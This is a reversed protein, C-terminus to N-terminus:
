SPRGKSSPETRGEPGARGDAIPPADGRLPDVHHDGVRGEPTRNTHWLSGAPAPAPPREPQAEGQPGTTPAADDGDGAGDPRYYGYGYRRRGSSGVLVIGSVHAGVQTLQEVAGRAQDSAVKGARAVVLSTDVHPLLASAENTLTIPGTDFIVVDALELCRRVLEGAGRMFWSPTVGRSGSRVMAVNPAITPSALDLLPREGIQALERLGVGPDVELLKGVAPRRFDCDVVLVRRGGEAISVALNAALTSKGDGTLSSTIVISRPDHELKVPTKAGVAGSEGRSLSTLHWTPALSISLRLARLVEATVGGPDHFAPLPHRQVHARSRAPLEALVPLGFADEAQRRTRIRTDLRDYVLVLAVGLLGALIAAVALRLLPRQPLTLLDAAGEEGAVPVPSPAELTVFSEALGERQDALSRVQTRLTAYEELLSSLDAELLLRDTSGEPAAEIEAELEQISTEVELLRESVRRFDNEITNRTRTDLFAVLEEAYTTAFTAAEDASPRIATVSMTNTVPDTGLTVQEVDSAGIDEGMREAIRNTLDGQRALLNILEFSLQTPAAENRILLHTARFSSAESALEEQTPARGSPLTLWTVLLAVVVLGAVVWWWRRLPLLYPALPSDTM